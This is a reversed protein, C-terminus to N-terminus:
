ETRRAKKRSKKFMALDADGNSENAAETMVWVREIEEGMTAGSARSGDGRVVLGEVRDSHRRKTGTAPKGQGGQQKSGADHAAPQKAVRPASAKRPAHLENYVEEFYDLAILVCASRQRDMKYVENDCTCHDENGQHVLVFSVQDDRVEFGITHTNIDSIECKVSKEMLELFDCDMKATLRCAAAAMPTDNSFWPVDIGELPNEFALNGGFVQLCLNEECHLSSM